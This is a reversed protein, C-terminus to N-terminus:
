AAAIGYLSFTSGTSFTGSFPYILITNIASTSRWLNVVAQTEGASATNVGYRVLSTKYTTSNSYNQISATMISPYTTDVGVDYGGFFNYSLNSGRASSAASGQGKLITYSYNSGTDSNFQIYINNSGVSAKVDAAVLVLDTYSGSITSFTVSAAASGLTQTAIPKYTIAM